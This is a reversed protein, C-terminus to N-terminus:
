HAGGNGNKVAPLQSTMETNQILGQQTQNHTLSTIGYTLGMTIFNTVPVPVPVNHITDWAYILLAVSEALCMFIIVGVFITNQQFANM